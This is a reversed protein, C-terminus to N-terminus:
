ATSALPASAALLQTGLSTRYYLVARGDRRSDVVGANRLIGLHVSLTPASVGLQHALHTTSMPLDLHSVIAARTQGVLDALPSDTTDQRDEWLRGLGRPPYTITPVHPAATVPLAAPWTFV